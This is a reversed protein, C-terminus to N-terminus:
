MVQLIAKGIYIYDKPELRIQESKNIYHINDEYAKKVGTGWESDSDEIYWSGNSYNLVAHEESITEFVALDSLDIDVQNNDVNRGIVLGAKGSINWSKIVRKDENLLVVNEISKRSIQVQSDIVKVKLRNITRIYQISMFIIALVFLISETLVKIWLEIDLYIICTVLAGFCIWAIKEFIDALGRKVHNNMIIVM